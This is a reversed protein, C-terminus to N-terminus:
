SIYYVSCVNGIVFGAVILIVGSTFITPMSSEMAARVAESPSLTERFRRYSGTLLIGYDITAGMQIASCILYSMFFIGEGRLTSYSMTMWVAGQIVFVLVAPVGANRFSILIILFVAAITIWTVRVTDGTFATAIDKSSMSAGAIAVDQGPYTEKLVNEVEDLFLYMDDGFYPIDMLVIMRAYDEGIFMSRAFDLMDKLEMIMDNKPMVDAAKDVLEDGRVETGFGLAGTYMGLAVSPIGSLESIEQLTYYKVAIEGTTVLSTVSTVAKKGGFTLEELKGILERQRDLDEDTTGTPFLLVTQNSVGFIRSVKNHEINSTNDTFIYENNRQIFISLVIVLILIPALVRRSKVAFGGIARGGLPLARRQTKEIAGSLMSILSPMFLFVTFLSILIGKILVIGIDYGITFSMFMLSALGAVTTLASSSVPMFSRVIAKELAILRNEEEKLFDFYNHLLMISYDMALALQLIAAVAFTVFSISDFIWNTGMNIVISVLLVAVFILPEIYSHANVFLVAIVVAVAIIMALRIEGSIREQLDLTQSPTGSLYYVVADEMNDLEQKLEVVFGTADPTDLFLEVKEYKVGDLEKRDTEPTHSARLVGERQHLMQTIESIRGEELNEFMVTLQNTNGFEAEMINLAKKTSTEEDLYDTFDYNIATKSILCGTILALAIFIALFFYRARVITRAIRHLM